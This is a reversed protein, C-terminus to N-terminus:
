RGEDLLLGEKRKRLDGFGKPFAFFHVKLFGLLPVEKM